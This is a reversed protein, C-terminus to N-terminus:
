WRFNRPLAVVTETSSPWPVLENAIWEEIKLVEKRSSKNILGSIVADHIVVLAAEGWAVRRGCDARRINASCSGMM